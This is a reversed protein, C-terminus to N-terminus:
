GGQAMWAALTDQLIAQIARKEDPPLYNFEAPAATERLASRMGALVRSLYEKPMANFAPTLVMYSCRYRLLRTRLDLDRLSTGNKAPSRTTAFDKAYTPDPKIGSSPLRAENAFLIYRVFDRALENLMKADDISLHGHGATLAERTRYVGLTVHNHFGLQHEHLLHPLLDSTTTLYDAIDFYKGPPNPYRQVGKATNEGLLNGLHEGHEQAGTVHWGGLRDKLPITHGVQERRFGELSAGSGQMPIVSEAFLGPVGHTARGAHCNMCKESRVVQPMGSATPALIQFIPGIAPDIAAVEIRGGPVYGVYVEDNFYLARPNSAHVLASQLSTASFVLLQSSIPVHLEHLLSRLFAQDSTGDLQVEGGAIRPLLQTFADSPQQQFYSHPPERLPSVPTAASLGLAGLRLSAALLWHCLAPRSRSLRRM